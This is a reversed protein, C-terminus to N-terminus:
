NVDIGLEDAVERALERIRTWLPHSYYGDLSDFDPNSEQGEAIDGMEELCRRVNASILGAEYLYKAVTGCWTGIDDALDLVGYQLNVPQSDHYETVLVTWSRPGQLVMAIIHKTKDLTLRWDQDRKMKSVKPGFAYLAM